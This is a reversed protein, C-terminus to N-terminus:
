CVIYLPKLNSDRVADEIKIAKKGIRVYYSNDNKLGFVQFKKHIKKDFKDTIPYIGAFLSRISTRTHKKNRLWLLFFENKTM